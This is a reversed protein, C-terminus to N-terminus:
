FLAGDPYKRRALANCGFVMLFGLISQFLGIAMAISPDGTVRLMRFVYTDIVDTVPLLMGNDKVLAYMMGFDAFFIRGISMLALITVVPMLLPLTIRFMKQWRNAGDIDAAEYLGEDIGTIAALYIISTYGANKLIYVFALIGYWYHPESYWRVPDGGISEIIKNLLGYDTNLLAYLIYSIIVWSLFHPFLMLSQSTKLFLKNRVENLLLALAIAVITGTIIFLANLVLTNRIVEWVRSSTFFFEFNRFGVWESRIGKTFNYREFAIVMYPLTFYGFVLTFITAPMLFLYGAKNRMLEKGIGVLPKM